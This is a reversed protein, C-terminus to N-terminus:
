DGTFLSASLRYIEDNIKRRLAKGAFLIFNIAPLFPLQYAISIMMKKRRLAKDAFLIFNIVPLFLLQYAISKTM